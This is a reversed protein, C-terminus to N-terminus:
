WSTIRGESDYTFGEVRMVGEVEYTGSPTTPATVTLTKEVTPVNFYGADSVAQTLMNPEPTTLMPAIPYSMGTPPATEKPPEPTSEKTLQSKIWDFISKPLSLAAETFQKDATLVDKVVDSPVKTVDVVDEAVDSLTKATGTIVDAAAGGVQDIKEQAFEFQKYLIFGGAAVAGLLVIDGFQFGYGRAM